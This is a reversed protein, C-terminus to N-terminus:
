ISDLQYKWNVLRRATPNLGPCWELCIFYNPLSGFACSTSPWRWCGFSGSFSWLPHHPTQKKFTNKPQQKKPRAARCASSGWGPILGAGWPTSAGFRLWQVALSTGPTRKKFWLQLLAVGVTCPVWLGQAKSESPGPQFGLDVKEKSLM